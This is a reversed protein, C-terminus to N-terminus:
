LSVAEAFLIAFRAKFWWGGGSFVKIFRQAALNYRLRDAKGYRSYNILAKLFDDRDKIIKIPSSSDEEQQRRREEKEQRQKKTLLASLLFNGGIVMQQKKQEEPTLFKLKHYKRQLGVSTLMTASCNRVISGFIISALPRGGKKVFYDATDSGQRGKAEVIEVGKAYQQVDMSTGLLIADSMGLEKTILSIGLLRIEAKKNPDGAMSILIIRGKADKGITSFAFADENPNWTVDNNGIPSIAQQINYYEDTGNRRLVPGTLAYRISSIDETPIGNALTIEKIGINGKDLVFFNYKGTLPAWRNQRIGQAIKSIVKGNIIVLTNSLWFNGQHGNIAFLPREAKAFERVTKGSFDKFEKKDKAAMTPTVAFRSFDYNVGDMDVWIRMEVKDPNIELLQGQVFEEDNEYIVGAVKFGLEIEKYSGMSLASVPYSKNKDEFSGVPSSVVPSSIRADLPALIRHDNPGALQPHLFAEQNAETRALITILSSHFQKGEIRLLAGIIETEQKDLARDLSTLRVDSFQKYIAKPAPATLLVLKIVQGLAKRKKDFEFYRSRSYSVSALRMFLENLSARTKMLTDLRKLDPNQISVLQQYEMDLAEKRKRLLPLLPDDKCIRFDESVLVNLHASDANRGYSLILMEELSTPSLSSLTVISDRSREFGYRVGPVESDDIIESIRNVFLDSDNGGIYFVSPRRHAWASISTAIFARSLVDWDKMRYGPILSKRKVKVIPESGDIVVGMAQLDERSFMNDLNKSLSKGKEDKGCVQNISVLAIKGFSDPYRLDDCYSVAMNRQSKQIAEATLAAFAKSIYREKDTPMAGRPTFGLVELVPHYDKLAEALFEAAIGQPIVLNGHADTKMGDMIEKLVPNANTLENTEEKNLRLGESCVITAGGVKRMREAVRRRIVNISIPHEPVYTELTPTVLGAKHLLELPLLKIADLSKKNGALAALRGCDRGMAELIVVEGSGPLAAARYVYEMLAQSASEAGLPLTFLTDGDITKPVGVVLCDIGRRELMDGLKKAEYLHDNGGIGVVFGFNEKINKLAAEAEPTNEVLSRRTSGFEFSPWYPMQKAMELTVPIIDKLPDDKILGDLGNKIGFVSYGGPVLYQALYGVFPNLACDGGSVFVGVRSKISNNKCNGSVPSSAAGTLQAYSPNFFAGFVIYNRNVVEELEGLEMGWDEDTEVNCLLSGTESFGIDRLLQEYGVPMLSRDRKEEDIARGLIALYGNRKIFKAATQLVRMCDEKGYFGLVNGITIVDFKRFTGDSKGLKSELSLIDTNLLCLKQGPRIVKILRKQAWKLMGRSIDVGTVSSAGSLFAFGAILGNGVGLDLVKGFSVVDRPVIQSFILKAADLMSDSVGLNYEMAEAANDYIGSLNQTKSSYDTIKSRLIPSKMIAMWFSDDHVDEEPLSFDTETGLLISIERKVDAFSSSCHIKNEIIKAGAALERIQIGYKNRLTGVQSGDNLGVLERLIKWAKGSHRLVLLVVSGSSIYDLLGQYFPKGKHEVYLGALLEQGLPQALDDRAIIKFGADMIDKIIEERKEFGDPKIMLFAIHKDIAIDTILGEHTRSKIRSITIKVPSSTRERKVFYANSENVMQRTHKDDFEKSFVFRRIGFNLAMQMCEKCPSYTSYLTAKSLDAEPRFVSAIIIAKQEACISRRFDPRNDRIDEAIARDDNHTYNKDDKMIDDRRIDGGMIEVDSYQALPAGNFGLSLANGAQDVLLAGTKIGSSNNSPCDAIDFVLTLWDRDPKEGSLYSLQEFVEDIHKLNSFYSAMEEEKLNLVGNRIFVAMDSIIQWIVIARVMQSRFVNRVLRFTGDWDKYYRTNEWRAVPVFWNGERQEFYELGGLVGELENIRTIREKALERNKLYSYSHSNGNIRSLIGKQGIHNYANIITKVEQHGPDNSSFYRLVDKQYPLSVLKSLAAIRVWYRQNNALNILQYVSYASIVGSLDLERMGGSAIIPSSINKNDRRGNEHILIMEKVNAAVDPDNEKELVSRLRSLPIRKISGNNKNATELLKKSVLLRIHLDLNKGSRLLMPLLFSNAILGCLSLFRATSDSTDPIFPNNPNSEMIFLCLVLLAMPSAFLGLNAIGSCFDEGGFGTMFYKFPFLRIKPSRIRWAGFKSMNRIILPVSRFPHALLYVALPFIFPTGICIAYEMWELPLDNLFQGIPGLIPSSVISSIGPKNLDGPNAKLFVVRRLVVQYNESLQFKAALAALLSKKQSAGLGGWDPGAQSVILESIAKFLSASEKGVTNQYLRTWVKEGVPLARIDNFCNAQFLKNILEEKESITAPNAQAAKEKIWGSYQKIADYFGKVYSPVKAYETSFIIDAYSEEERIAPLEETKNKRIFKDEVELVTLNYYKGESLYRLIDRDRRLQWSADLFIKLDYYRNTYKNSLVFVGEVIIINYGPMIASLAEKGNEDVARKRRVQDFVPKYIIKGKRLAQIDRYFRSFEWKGLWHEPRISGMKGLSRLQTPRNEKALIYDDFDISLFQPPEIVANPRSMNVARCYACIKEKIIGVHQTFYSKGAASYGTIAILTPRPDKRFTNAKWKLLIDDALKEIKDETMDMNVQLQPKLPDELGVGIGELAWKA